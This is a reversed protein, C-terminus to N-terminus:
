KIMKVAKHASLIATPTGGIARTWHGTCYLNKLGKVKGEAKYFSKFGMLSFSQFSGYSTNVQKELDIPGFRTLHEVKGKFEPYRKIFAKILEDEIRQNEKEFEEKALSKFYTYDLHNQDVFLSVVTKNDKVFYEPDYSYPRIYIYDVNTGGVKVPDINITTPGDIVSVDGEVTVYINFCSSINNKNIRKNSKSIKKIKYKDDLYTRFLFRPDITSFVIDPCFVENKSTKVAFVRKNKIELGTVEDNLLLTGGLSLFRNKVREIMYKAGGSPLDANGQTFLGYVDFLFFMSNYGTMMNRIAFQLAPNKFRKSYEERSIGMLRIITPLKALLKFVDSVSKKENTKLGYKMLTTLLKTNKFFRNIEKKDEPAIKLWEQKSKDIDRNLRVKTGNYDLTIFSDLKIIKTNKNFVDINEWIEYLENTYRTGMLWHLCADVYYGNVDYGSCLGGVYDNKEILTVKHGKQLLEIGATLGSLGGGIIIIDKGM